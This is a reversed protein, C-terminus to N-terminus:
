SNTAYAQVLEKAMKQYEKLQEDGLKLLLDEPSVGDKKPDEIEGLPEQMMIQGGFETRFFLLLEYFRYGDNNKLADELDLYLAKFALAATMDKAMKQGKRSRIFEADKGMVLDHIQKLDDGFREKLDIEMLIADENKAKNLAVSYSSRGM